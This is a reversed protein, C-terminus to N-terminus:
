SKCCAEIAQIKMIRREHRGGEFATTLFIKIFKQALYLTTHKGGLCIINADNHRRAYEADDEIKVVAARIGPIKNAAISVGIGSRCILIGRAAPDNLIAKGVLEAYDPYDVSQLDHTGQDICNYGEQQLFAIVGQKLEFGGHDSGIHLTIM